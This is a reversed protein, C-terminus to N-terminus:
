ERGTLERTNIGKSRLYNDQALKKLKAVPASRATRNTQGENPMASGTKYAHLNITTGEKESGFVFGKPVTLTFEHWDPTKSSTGGRQVAERAVRRLYEGLSVKSEKAAREIDAKLGVECLFTIRATKM